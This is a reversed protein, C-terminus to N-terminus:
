KQNLRQVKNIQEHSFMMYGSETYMTPKLKGVKVWYRITSVPLEVAKAFKAITMLKEQPIENKTDFIDFITDFSQSLRKVMFKIYDDINGTLQAKEISNIYRKRDRPRIIIPCFGNQMLLLNMLLRACRGNGDSFPHISVFDLHLKIIDEIKTSSKYKGWFVKMLDPVKMPNPLIVRSGSIRVPCNRYFGANYDDIGSLLKKHIDLVVNENIIAKSKLIDIIYDFAKAHNVAEQYHVFPKSSSTIDEEIVLRTEKRTLTNGEINNSTYALESKLWKYLQEKSKNDSFLKNFKKKKSSIKSLLSYISHEM